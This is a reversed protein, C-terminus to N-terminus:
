WTFGYLSLALLAVMVTLTTLRFRLLGGLAQRYLRFLIGQYPVSPETQEPQATSRRKESWNIFVPTLTLATVWSLMLSILLM